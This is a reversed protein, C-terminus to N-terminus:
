NWGSTGPQRFEVSTERAAEHETFTLDLQTFIEDASEIPFLPLRNVDGVQFNVTPNLAVMVEKGTQSNLLCTVSAIDKPYVSSGAVYIIGPYRHARASFAAGISTYAVGKSFYFQRSPTGNGGGNSGFCDHGIRSQCGNNIWLILDELPAIWKKGASGMIYPSWKINPENKISFDFNKTWLIEVEWPKRVYRTNNSTHMGGRVESEDQIKPTKSYRDLFMKDWWYVIPQEKIATFRDSQFEFRGVQALVAARKRNTRQRDYALEDLPTPQLAISVNETPALKQFISLTVALVENPVEDFAGRDFDGLLRLDCKDILFERISSFQKIFMWNPTKQM